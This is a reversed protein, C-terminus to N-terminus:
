LGPQRDGSGRRHRLCCLKSPASFPSSMRSQGLQQQRPSHSPEQLFHVRTGSCRGLEGTVSTAGELGFNEWAERKTCCGKKSGTRGPPVCSPADAPIERGGRHSRIPRRHCRERGPKLGYPSSARSRSSACAATRQPLHAAGRRPGPSRVPRAPPRCPSVLGRHQVERPLAQGQRTETPQLEEAGLILPPDATQQPLSSLWLQGRDGEIVRGAPSGRTGRLFTGGHGVRESLQM